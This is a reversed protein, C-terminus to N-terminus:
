DSLPEGRSWRIVAEATDAGFKEMLDDMDLLDGGRIGAGGSYAKGSEFSALKAGRSDVVTFDGRVRARGAGFGILLRAVRSGKDVETLRGDIRVADPRANAGVADIVALAQSERLKEEFGKRFHAPYSAWTPDSAALDGGVIAHYSQPPAQVSQPTITTTTCGGVLLACFM